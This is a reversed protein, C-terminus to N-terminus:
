VVVVVHVLSALIRASALKRALNIEMGRTISIQGSSIEWGFIEASPQKAASSIHTVLAVVVVHLAFAGATPSFWTREIWVIPFQRRAFAILGNANALAMVAAFAEHAWRATIGCTLGLTGCVVVVDGM